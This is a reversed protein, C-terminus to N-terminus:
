EFQVFAVARAPCPLPCRSASPYTGAAMPARGTLFLKDAGNLDVKCGAKTQTITIYEPSAVTGTTRISIFTDLV